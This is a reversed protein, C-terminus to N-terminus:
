SHQGFDPSEALLLAVHDEYHIVKNDDELIKAEEDTFTFQRTLTKGSASKARFEKQLKVFPLDDVEHKTVRGNKGFNFNPLKQKLGRVYSTVENKRSHTVILVVKCRGQYIVTMGDMQKGQLQIVEGLKYERKQMFNAIPM